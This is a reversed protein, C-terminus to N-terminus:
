KNKLHLDSSNQHFTLWGQFSFGFKNTWAYVIPLPLFKLNATRFPLIERPFNLSSNIAFTQWCMGESLCFVVSLMEHFQYVFLIKKWKKDIQLWLSFLIWLALIVLFTYFLFPTAVFISNIIICIFKCHKHMQTHIFNFILTIVIANKYFMFCFLFFVFIFISLKPIFKEWTIFIM